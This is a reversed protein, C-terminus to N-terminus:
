DVEDEEDFYPEGSLWFFDYDGSLREILPEINSALNVAQLSDMGYLDFGCEDIGEIEVRCGSTYRDVSFEVKDQQVPYPVGIRIRVEKRISCKKESFLLIREAIYQM